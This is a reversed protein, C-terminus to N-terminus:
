VFLGFINSNAVVKVREKDFYIHFFLCCIVFGPGAGSGLGHTGGGCPSDLNSMNRLHSTLFGSAMLRLPTGIPDIPCRLM